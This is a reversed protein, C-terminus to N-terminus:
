LSRGIEESKSGSGIKWLNWDESASVKGGTGSLSGSVFIGVQPPGSGTLSFSSFRSKSSNRSGRTEAYRQWRTRRSM